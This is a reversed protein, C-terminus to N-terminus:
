DVIRIEDIYTSAYISGSASVISGGIGGEAPLPRDLSGTADDILSGGSYARVSFSAGGTDVGSGAEYVFTEAAGTNQVPEGSQFVFGTDGHVGTIVSDGAVFAYEGAVTAGWDIEFRVYGNSISSVAAGSLSCITDTNGSGDVYSLTVTDGPGSLVLSFREPDVTASQVGFWFQGFNDASDEVALYVEITDGAQPYAPLGSTSVVFESRTTTDVNRVELAYDGAAELPSIKGEAQGSTEYEDLDGDEYDDVLQPTM